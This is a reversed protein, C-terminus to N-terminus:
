RKAPGRSHAAQELVKVDILDKDRGADRKNVLLAVRGLFPVRNGAIDIMFATAIAESFQVGDVHTIIDIRRPPLGMQYLTGSRAFDDVGVDHDALPAGFRLLAQIVRPPNESAPNVFFDM